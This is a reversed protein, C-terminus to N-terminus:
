NIKTDVPYNIEKLLQKIKEETAPADFDIEVAKSEADAKVSKVGPLESVETQITHVCHGCSINPVYYKVSVM